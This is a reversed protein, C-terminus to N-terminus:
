PLTTCALLTVPVAFTIPFELSSHSVDGAHFSSRLSPSIIASHCLDASHYSCCFHRSIIASHCLDASHYSGCFHRSIMASHRPDASHHTIRRFSPLSRYRSLFWAPSPFNWPRTACTFGLPQRCPPSRHTSGSSSLTCLYPVFLTPLVLLSCAGTLLSAPPIQPLLSPLGDSKTAQINCMSTRTWVCEVITPPTLPPSSPLPHPHPPPPLTSTAILKTTLEKALAPPPSSPLPHPHPPPVLKITPGKPYTIQNNRHHSLKPAYVKHSTKHCPSTFNQGVLERKALIASDKSSQKLKERSVTEGKGELGGIGM